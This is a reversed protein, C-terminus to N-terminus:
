RASGPDPWDILGRQLGLVVAHTRDRAQLKMMVSRMHSKVTDVSVILADAIEQNRWGRAAQQLVEIERESPPSLGDRQPMGEGPRCLTGIRRDIYIGGELLSRLATLEPGLGVQSEPLVGDCCAEVAQRLRGHRHEQTVLLLTRIAPHRQKVTVVLSVGCGAELRDSVWLVDPRHVEALRLGEAETTAAGLIREPQPCAGVLASLLARSGLCFVVRQGKLLDGARASNARLQPLLPTFDM